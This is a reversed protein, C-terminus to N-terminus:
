CDDITELVGVADIVSPHQALESAAEIFERHSVLVAIVDAEALAESLDCHLAESLTEPLTDINPEVVLLPKKIKSQLAEAIKRSPSERLDDIDPKFAIGLVAVKCQEGDAKKACVGQYAALIQEEVWEPKHENV